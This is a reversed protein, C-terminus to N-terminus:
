RLSLYCTAGSAETGCGQMHMCPRSDLCRRRPSRKAADIVCCAQQGGQIGKPGAFLFICFFSAKFGALALLATVRESMREGTGKLDAIAVRLGPRARSRFYGFCYTKQWSHSAVM